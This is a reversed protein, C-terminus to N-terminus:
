ADGLLWRPRLEQEVQEHPILSGSEVDALGQSVRQLVYLPYSVEELTRDDPLKDLLERVAKKARM